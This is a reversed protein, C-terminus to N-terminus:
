KSCLLVQAHKYPMFIIGFHIFLYCVHYVAAAQIHFVMLSQLHTHTPPLTLTPLSTLHQLLQRGAQRYECEIYQQLQIFDVPNLEKVEPNTPTSMTSAEASVAQRHTRVSSLLLQHLRLSFLLHTCLLRGRQLVYFFCAVRSHALSLMKWRARCFDVNTSLFFFIWM